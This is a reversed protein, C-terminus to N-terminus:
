LRGIRIRTRPGIRSLLRVLTARTTAVCGATPTFGPRAVHWFIGSGRHRVVPRDNFGIEVIIDYLADERTLWEQSGAPAPRGTVLRNYARDDPLDSWWDGPRIVRLPLGSARAAVRDARVHVRRLAWIGAPSKGDGERQKLGVGARGLACPFRAGGAILTGRRSDLAHPIVHIHKLYRRFTM